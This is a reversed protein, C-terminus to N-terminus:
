PVTAISRAEDRERYEKPTMGTANKFLKTFYRSSEYGVMQCIDIVKLTPNLLLEKAANMRVEKVYDVFNLGAKEKFLRSLYIPHLYFLKSLSDLTIDEAYHEQIYRKINDIVNDSEPNDQPLEAALLELWDSMSEKIVSLRPPLLLDRIFTQFGSNDILKFRGINQLHQNLMLVVQICFAQVELLSSKETDMIADIKALIYAALNGRQQPSTLMRLLDMSFAEDLQGEFFAQTGIEGYMASQQQGNISLYQLAKGAEQYAIQLRESAEHRDSGGIMGELQFRELQSQLRDIFPAVSLKQEEALFILFSLENLENNFPFVIGGFDLPAPAERMWDSKFAEVAEHRASPTRFRLRLVCYSRESMYPELMSASNVISADENGKAWNNLLLNIKMQRYERRESVELREKELRLRFTALLQKLEGFNVPKTLFDAAGLRLAKLAYEFEGYGSLVVTITDPYEEQIAELLELGSRVPMRIDTIVLDIQRNELCALAQDVSHATDAVQYGFTEWDLFRQLGNCVIEEDDVLLVQYYM